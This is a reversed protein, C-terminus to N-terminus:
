VGPRPTSIVAHVAVAAFAVQYVVYVGTVIMAQQLILGCYKRAAHWSGSLCAVVAPNLILARM